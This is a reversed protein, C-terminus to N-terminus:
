FFYRGCYFGISKQFNNFGHGGRAEIALVKAFLKYLSGNTKFYIYSIELVSIPNFEDIFHPNHVIVLTIFYSLLDKPLKANLLFKFFFFVNVNTKVVECFEKLIFFIIAM